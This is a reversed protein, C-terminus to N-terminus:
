LSLYCNMLIFHTNVLETRSFFQIFRISGVDNIEPYRYHKDFIGLGKSFNINICENQNVYTM